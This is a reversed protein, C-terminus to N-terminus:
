ILDIFYFLDKSDGPILENMADSINVMYFMFIRCKGCGCVHGFM